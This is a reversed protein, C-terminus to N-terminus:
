KGPKAHKLEKIEKKLKNIKDKLERIEENKQADTSLGHRIPELEEQKQQSETLEENEQKVYIQQAEENRDADRYRELERYNKNPFEKALEHMTKEKTM